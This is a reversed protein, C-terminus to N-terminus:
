RWSQLFPQSKCVKEQDLCVIKSNTGDMGEDIFNMRFRLFNFFFNLQCASFGITSLYWGLFQEGLNLYMKPATRWDLFWTKWLYRMRYELREIRTLWTHWLVFKNKLTKLFAPAETFITDFNFHELEFFVAICRKDLLSSESSDSDPSM